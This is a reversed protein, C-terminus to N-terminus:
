FPNLGIHGVAYGLNFGADSPTFGMLPILSSVFIVIKNNDMLHQELFKATKVVTYSGHTIIIRESKSKKVEGLIKKPEKAKEQLIQLFSGPASGFDLITANRPLLHPFKELIEELKFASRARLGRKKALHFYHDQPSYAKPM